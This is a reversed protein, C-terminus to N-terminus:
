DTPLEPLCGSMRRSAGLPDKTTARWCGQDEFTLDYTRRATRCTFHYTEVKTCDPRHLQSTPSIEDGFAAIVRGEFDAREFTLSVSM